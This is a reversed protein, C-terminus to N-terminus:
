NKAPAGKLMAILYSAATPHTVDPAGPYNLECPVEASCIGVAMALAFCCVTRKM